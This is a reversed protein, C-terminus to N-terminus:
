KIGFINKLFDFTEDIEREVAIIRIESCKYKNSIYAKFKLQADVESIANKVRMKKTFGNLSYTIIFTM